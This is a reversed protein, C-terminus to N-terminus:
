LQVCVENQLGIDLVKRSYIISKLHNECIICCELNAKIKKRSHVHILFYIDSIKTEAPTHVPRLFM